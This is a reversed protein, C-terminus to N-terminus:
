SYRNGILTINKMAVIQTYIRLMFIDNKLTIMLFKIQKLNINKYKTGKSFIM